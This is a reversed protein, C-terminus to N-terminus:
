EWTPSSHLQLLRCFGLSAKSWPRSPMYGMVLIDMRLQELVAAPLVSLNGSGHFWGGGTISYSVSLDTKGSMSRSGAQFSSPCLGMEPMSGVPSTEARPSCCQSRTSHAEFHAEPSPWLCHTDMQDLVHEGVAGSCGGMDASSSAAGEKACACWGPVAESVEPTPAINSLLNPM